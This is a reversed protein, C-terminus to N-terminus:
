LEPRVHVTKDAVVYVNETYPARGAERIEIRYQGPRLWITKNERTTGAYAGDIFVQADKVKTDLKVEGENPHAIYVPGWDMGWYPGWPGWYGGWYPGWYPGAPGHWVGGYSRVAVGGRHEFAWANLPVLAALAVALVLLGRRM